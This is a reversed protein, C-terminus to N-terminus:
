CVKERVYIDDIFSAPITNLSFVSFHKKIFAKMENISLSAWWIEAVLVLSSVFVDATHGNDMRITAVGNWVQITKGEYEKGLIDWKVRRGITIM